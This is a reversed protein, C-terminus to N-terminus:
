PKLRPFFMPVRKKYELYDSGLRKELEPEEILKLEIVNLLIFLPTFIGVLSVSRLLTGLGFMLIFVATMMPNRAYKYPGAAVLRPPPNFPVPTGKVKVFHLLSWLWLLLGVALMPGSVAVNVTVPLLKPFELYRDTLLALVFFVAILLFFVTGGVPTLVIKIRGRSTVAKNLIEVPKERLTM